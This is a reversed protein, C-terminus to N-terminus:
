IEDIQKLYELFEDAKLVQGVIRKGPIEQGDPDLFLITPWGIVKFREVVEECQDTEKTCDIKVPVFEKKLAEMVKPDSFVFKSWEICPLCWDAYFDIITKKNETKAKDIAVTFNHNFYSDEPMDKKIFPHVLVYLYYFAVILLLVGFIKKILHSKEGFRAVWDRSFFGLIFFLVSLGLSYSLMLVFGLVLNQTTSIYVLLPGLIPGVCPAALFGITLGAYFYRFSGKPQHSVIQNQFRAPVNIQVLGFMWLAMIIFFLILFVLFVTSQFFFGLTQGLAASGVGLVSYMLVLGATFILLHGVRRSKRENPTVGMFALTLPIVPLVCPTFGTMLGALFTLLLAFFLGKNLVKQFDNTRLLDWLSKEPKPKVSSVKLKALTQADPKLELAFPTKTTRFCIKDSCGQYYVKGRLEDSFDFQPDFSLKLIVVLQNYYIEADDGMFEDFKVVGAPRVLVDSVHGNELEVRISDRYLYYKQPIQFLFDVEAKLDKVEVATEDDFYLSFPHADDVETTFAHATSALLFILYIAVWKLNRM